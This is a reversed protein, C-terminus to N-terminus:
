AFLMYVIIAFNLSQSIYIGSIEKKVESVTCCYLVNMALLTDLVTFM